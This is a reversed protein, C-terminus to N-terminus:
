RVWSYIVFYELSKVDSGQQGKKIIIELTKVPGSSADALLLYIM